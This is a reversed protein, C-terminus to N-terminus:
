LLSSDHHYKGILRQSEEHIDTVGYLLLEGELRKLEDDGLLNVNYGFIPDNELKFPVLNKDSLCYENGHDYSVTSPALLTYRMDVVSTM